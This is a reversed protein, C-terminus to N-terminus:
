HAQRGEFEVVIGSICTDDYTTGKYVETIEFRFKAECGNGVKMAVPSLDVYQPLMTDELTITGMYEDAFYLKMSKVRNNEQWTKEDKAYGNVICMENYRFIDDGGGLYLERIEFSEGIGDGPVGEAWADLRYADNLNEVGYTISGQPELFSSVTARRFHQWCACWSSCGTALRDEYGFLEGNVKDVAYSGTDEVEYGKFSGIVPGAFQYSWGEPISFSPKTEDDIIATVIIHYSYDADYIRYESGWEVISSISLKEMERLVYESIEGNSHVVETSDPNCNLWFSGVFERIYKLQETKHCIARITDGYEVTEKENGMATNKKIDVITYRYADEYRDRCYHELVFLDGVGKGLAKKINEELIEASIEQNGHNFHESASDVVFEVEGQEYWQDTIKRRECFGQVTKGALESVPKEDSVYSVKQEFVWRDNSSVLEKTTEPEIPIQPEPTIHEQEVSEESTSEQEVTEGASSIQEENKKDQSEETAINTAEKTEEADTSGCASLVLLVGALLFVFLRKRM